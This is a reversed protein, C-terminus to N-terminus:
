HEMNLITQESAKAQKSALISPGTLTMMDVGKRYYLISGVVQQVRKKKEEDAKQTKDEPMPDQAVRGFKRPQVPYPSYQPKNPKGQKYKSLLWKIYGPM